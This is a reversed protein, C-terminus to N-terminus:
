DLVAKSVNLSREKLTNYFNILIGELSIAKDLAHKRNEVYLDALKIAIDRTM